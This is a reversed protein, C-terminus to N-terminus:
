NHTWPYCWSLANFCSDLCSSVFAYKAHKRLLCSPLRQCSRDFPLLHTQKSCGSMPNLHRLGVLQKGTRPVSTLIIVKELKNLVINNQKTIGDRFIMQNASHKCQYWFSIKSLWNVHPFLGSVLYFVSLLWSPPPYYFNWLLQYLSPVDTIHANETSDLALATGQSHM